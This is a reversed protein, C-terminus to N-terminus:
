RRAKRACASVLATGVHICRSEPTNSAGRASSCRLSVQLVSLIQRGAGARHGLSRGAREARCQHPVRRGVARRCRCPVQSLEVPARRAAEVGGGMQLISPREPGSVVTKAALPFSVGHQTAIQRTEAAGGPEQGGFDNSPVGIVVLGRSSLAKWVTELTDFQNAFGCFSATNVVLVPKDVFDALRIQGGGLADFSYRYATVASMGGQQAWTPRTLAPSTLLASGGLALAARRSVQMAPRTMSRRRGRHVVRWNASPKHDDAMGTYPCIVNATKQSLGRGAQLWVRRTKLWARRWHRSGGAPGSREGPLWSLHVM